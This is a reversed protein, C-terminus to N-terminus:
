LYWQDGGLVRFSVKYSLGNDIAYDLAKGMGPSMGHDLYFVIADAVRYMELGARRGLEREEPVSDSLVQTYLLHSLFPPEGDKLCEAMCEKAYTVNREIDGAFPSEIVVINRVKEVAKKPTETQVPKKKKFWRFM